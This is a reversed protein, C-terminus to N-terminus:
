TTHPPTPHTRPQAWTGLIAKGYWEEEFVYWDVYM